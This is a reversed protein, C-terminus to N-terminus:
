PERVIKEISVLHAAQKKAVSVRQDVIMAGASRKSSMGM